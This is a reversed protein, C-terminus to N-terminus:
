PAVSKRLVLRGHTSSGNFLGLLINSAWCVLVAVHEQGHLSVFTEVLIRSAGGNMLSVESSNGTDSGDSGVVQLRLALDPCQDDTVSLTELLLTEMLPSSMHCGNGTIVIQTRVKRNGLVLLDFM